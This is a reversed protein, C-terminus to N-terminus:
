YVWKEPLIDVQTRGRTVIQKTTNRTALQRPSLLLCVIIVKNNICNSNSQDDINAVSDGATFHATSGFASATVNVQM